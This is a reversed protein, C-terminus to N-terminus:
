GTKQKSSTVNGRGSPEYRSRSCQNLVVIAAILYVIAHASGTALITLLRVITPDIGLYDGTPAYVAIM